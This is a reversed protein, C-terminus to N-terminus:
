SKSLDIEDLLREILRTQEQGTSLKERLIKGSLELSIEAVEDRIQRLAEEKEAGIQERAATIVKEAEQRADERAQKILKERLKETERMMAAQQERTAAMMEEGAKKVNALEERAERAAQLSEDIWDARKEVSSLITPLAFKILVFLVVGFAILMWFVLGPEPTLLSM